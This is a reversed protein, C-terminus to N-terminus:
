RVTEVHFCEPQGRGIGCNVDIPVGHITMPRTWECADINHERLILAADLPHMHARVNANFRQARLLASQKVILMAIQTVDATM